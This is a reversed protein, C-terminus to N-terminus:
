QMQQPVPRVLGGALTSKMDLKGVSSATMEALRMRFAEMGQQAIQTVLSNDPALGMNNELSSTIIIKDNNALRDLVDLRAMEQDQKRRAAFAEAAQGEAESVAKKGTAIKVQAEKRARARTAYEYAESEAELKEVEAEIKAKNQRQVSLIEANLKATELEATATMDAVEAEREAELMGMDKETNALVERTEKTIQARTTVMEEELAMRLNDCEEKLKAKEEANSLEMKSEQQKMKKELTKSMFLTKSEFDQAMDTPIQVNRVTFHHITVGYKAFEDNMEKVYGETNKGHLDYISEVPMTFALSRLVEEQTARLLSDLKEPGLSYVFQDAKVIECVILVDVNVTIHDKTKVEKVPTDFIILQKSVLRNVRHCCWFWHFGPSWTGDPEPGVVDAGWRSVIASFGAPISTWCCPCGCCQSAARVPVLVIPVFDEPMMGTILHANRMHPVVVESLTTGEKQIANVPSLWPM